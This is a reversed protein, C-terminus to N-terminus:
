FKLHGNEICWCTLDYLAIILEEHEFIKINTNYSVVWKEKYVMMQLFCGHVIEKPLIDILDTLAFIPHEEFEEFGIVVPIHPSNVIYERPNVRPKQQWDRIKKVAVLSAKEKPVGLELLHRSQDKNLQTLMNFIYTM